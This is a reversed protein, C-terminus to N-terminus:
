QTSKKEYTCAKKEVFKRTAFSIRSFFDSFRNKLISIEANEM